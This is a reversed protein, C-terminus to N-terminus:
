WRIILAIISLILTLLFFVRILQILQNNLKRNAKPNFIFIAVIVFYALKPDIPFNGARVSWLLNFFFATYIVIYFPSNLNRFREYFFRSIYGIILPFILSYYGFDMFYSFPIAASQATRSKTYNKQLFSAGHDKYNPIFLSLYIGLTYKGNLKEGDLADVIYAGFKQSGTLDGHVVWAAVEATSMKGSLNLNNKGGHRLIQVWGILFLVLVGTFVVRKFTKLSIQYYNLYIVLAGVITFVILAREAFLINLVISLVFQILYLNNKRIVYFYYAIIGLFSLAKTPFDVFGGLQSLKIRLFRDDSLIPIGSIYIFKLIFFLLSVLYILHFINIASLSVEKYDIVKKKKASYFGIFYFLIYLVYLGLYNTTYGLMDGRWGLGNPIFALLSVIIFFLIYAHPHVIYKIWKM